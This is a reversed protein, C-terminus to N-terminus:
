VGDGLHVGDVPEQLWSSIDKGLVKVTRGLVSCSGKFGAFLGGRSTRAATFSAQKEGNDFLSGKISTIKRHGTFANGSSVARTIEVVLAQGDSNQSVEDQQLVTIGKDASYAVIFDSLQTNLNCEKKINAAVMVGKAYPVSSQVKVSNVKEIVKAKTKEAVTQKMAEQSSELKAQLQNEDAASIETNSNNSACGAISLALLATLVIKKM